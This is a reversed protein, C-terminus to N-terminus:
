QAVWFLNLAPNFRLHATGIQGQRQKAVILELRNRQADMGAMWAAHADSAERTGDLRPEERALYYDERYCFIVTDADQELQGSDRLDQMQPRKDDRAECQRSLQTLALVPCDLQLALSKLAISIETIQEYRSRAQSRLLQLYDVVVLSVAGHKAAVQKAGAYLAGVDRYSAPLFEIPLISAERASAVVDGMQRQTLDGQEMMSYPVGNGREGTGSSMIRLMMDDAPMELSAFCVAGSGAVQEAAHRAIELAVATNHTVIYDDTLYLRSPHSVSICQAPEVGDPEVSVITLRVPKSRRCRVRKKELLALSQPDPHRISLVFHPLGKRRKGGVVAFVEKEAISCVGGLSWVLRQVGKALEPSSTSYRVAGFTEVWGDTDILGRLLSLRDERSANLYSEPIFKQYSAKGRLGLAGLDAMMVNPRGRPTTISYDIEGVRNLDHGAPITARVREVTENHQDYFRITSNRTSGNGIIAGLLWADIPLDGGGFDGSALPVYLRRRFRETAIMRAVQDTSVVAPGNLKSSEIRWLHEGCCRTSRGDSFTVRYIQREGQPFVGTVESIGGDVSALRDGVVIEGMRKWGAETKVMAGLPQAKGMSPRGGLLILQGPRLVPVISGLEPVRVRVGRPQNGAQADSVRQLATTTAAMASVPKSAAAMGGALGLSAELRASVTAADTEDDALAELAQEAAAAIARKARLGDLMTAYDGVAFTAVASGALRVLYAPGGLETVGQDAEAWLRLTVPSVFEGRRHRQMIQECIRGHVPDGFLDTSLVAGLKDITRDDTLMAGLLQQEAAINILKDRMATSLEARM